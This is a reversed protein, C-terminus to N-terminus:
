AWSYTVPYIMCVMFLYALYNDNDLLRIGIYGGYTDYKIFGAQIYVNNTYWTLAVIYLVHNVVGYLHHGRGIERWKYEIFNKMSEAKFINFEESESIIKVMPVDDNVLKWTQSIGDFVFHKGFCPLLNM